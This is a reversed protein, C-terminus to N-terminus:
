EFNVYYIELHMTGKQVSQLHGRMALNEWIERPYGPLETCTLNALQHKIRLELEIIFRAIIKPCATASNNQESLHIEIEKIIDFHYCSQKLRIWLSVVKILSSKESWGKHSESECELQFCRSSSCTVTM